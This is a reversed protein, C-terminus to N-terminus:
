MSLFNDIIKKALKEMENEIERCERLVQRKSKGIQHPEEPYACIWRKAEARNIELHFIVGRVQDKKFSQVPCPKGEAL